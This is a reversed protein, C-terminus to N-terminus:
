GLLLQKAPSENMEIVPLPNKKPTAGCNKCVTVAINEHTAMVVDGNCNSCRGIVKDM